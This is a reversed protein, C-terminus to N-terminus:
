KRSPLRSADAGVRLGDSGLPATDLVRYDGGAFDAFYSM